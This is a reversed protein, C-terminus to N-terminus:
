TGSSDSCYDCVPDVFGPIAERGCPCRAKPKRVRKSKSKPLCIACSDIFANSHAEGPCQTSM